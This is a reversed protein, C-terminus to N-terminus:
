EHRGRTRIVAIRGLRILTRDPTEGPLAEAPSILAVTGNSLGPGAIIHLGKISIAPGPEDPWTQYVAYNRSTLANMVATHLRAAGPTPYRAIARQEWTIPTIRVVLYDPM